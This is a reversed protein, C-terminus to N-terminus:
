GLGVKRSQERTALTYLTEWSAGRPEMGKHMWVVREHTSQFKAQIREGQIGPPRGITCGDMRYPLAPSSVDSQVRWQQSTLRVLRLSQALLFKMATRVNGIRAQPATLRPPDRIRASLVLLCGKLTEM